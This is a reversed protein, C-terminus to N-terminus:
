LEQGGSEFKIKQNSLQNFTLIHKNSLSQLENHQFARLKENFSDEILRSRDDRSIKTEIEQKSLELPKM